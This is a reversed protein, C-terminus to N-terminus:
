AAPGAPSSWPTPRASSRRCRPGLGAARVHGRRAAPRRVHRVPGRRPRRSPGRGLPRGLRGTPRVPPPRDRRQRLRAHGAVETCRGASSRGPTSRSAAGGVAGPVPRDGAPGATRDHHRLRDPRLGGPVRDAGRVPPGALLVARGAGAGDSVVVDPRERASSGSPWCCTACCTRSTAPPRSPAGAIVREGELLAAPLRAHRLLGLHPRAREWWPRLKVLQALHGGSSCVLLIRYREGAAVARPRRGRVRAASRTRASAMLHRPRRRNLAAM